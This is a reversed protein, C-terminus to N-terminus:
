RIAQKLESMLRHVSETDQQILQQYIDHSGGCGDNMYKNYAEISELKSVIVQMLNYTHNDVPYKSQTAQDSTKMQM